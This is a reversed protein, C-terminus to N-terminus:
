AAEEVLRADVSYTMGDDDRRVEVRWLLRKGGSQQLLMPKCARVRGIWPKIGPESVRVRQEMTFPSDIVSVDSM